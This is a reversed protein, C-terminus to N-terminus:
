QAPAAPRERLVARTPFLLAFVAVILLIGVLVIRLSNTSYLLEVVVRALTYGIVGAIVLRGIAPVREVTQAWGATPQILGMRWAGVLAAIALVLAADVPHEYTGALLLTVTAAILGLRPVAGIRDWFAGPAAGDWRQIQLAGIRGAKASRRVVLEQLVVRALVAVVAAGVIWEWGFQVAEIGGITPSGVRWTYVPRILVVVARTWFFTLLGAALLYIGARAIMRNRLSSMRRLPTREAFARAVMPLTVAPIALLLYTILSLGIVTLIAFLPNDSLYSWPVWGGLAAAALLRLVDGVVVGALLGIGATGHLIGAASVLVMFWLLESWVRPYTVSSFDAPLFPLAVSVVLGIVFAVIPAYATVRPWIATWAGDAFADAVRPAWSEIRRPIAISWLRILEDTRDMAPRKM